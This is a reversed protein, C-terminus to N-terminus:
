ASSNVGFMSVIFVLAIIRGSLLYWGNFITGTSTSVNRM